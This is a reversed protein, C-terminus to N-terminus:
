RRVARIAQLGDKSKYEWVIEGSPDVEIARGSGGNGYYMFGILTNGNPLRQCSSANNTDYKWVEKSTKLDYEVVRNSECVLIKDDGVSDISQYQQFRGLTLPKGVEKGDKAGVRFVNPQNNGNFQTIFVVDGNPMRHGGMIDYQQRTYLWVQKMNKDYQVVQNRSVVVMGGDSVLDINLPYNVSTSKVIRGTSDRETLRNANQEAIIYNGNPLKKVDTPYTLQNVGEAGIKVKEKQDPGLTVLQFRGFNVDQEIIDTYGTIRPTFAFAVLDFGNAKEKWWGAWADKAKTLSEESKGFRANPKGDGAAQLLFEELQWIRGRPLKPIMDILAPVFEKERSTLLLAWTGRFKADVDPEKALAAKVLPFADKIRIREAAPGGEILAVYAASRCLVSKDDLAKVLAPEAKGGRVALAVLAVQIEEAVEDSDALPLFGLLAAAAGDPKLKALARATAVAVRSHPVKEMRKLAQRARYAVEADTNKEATKLPGIAAPGFREVDATAKVREEFDDAGFRAIVEGIKHQDEETLTRQKLYDILPGAETASLGVEKLASEDTLQTNTTTTTGGAIPRAPRKIPVPVPDDGRVPVLLLAALPLAVAFLMGHRRM